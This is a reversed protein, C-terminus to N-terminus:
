TLQVKQQNSLVLKTTISTKTRPPLIEIIMLFSHWWFNNHPWNFLWNCSQSVCHFMLLIRWDCASFMCLMMHKFTQNQVKAKSHFCVHEKKKREKKKPGSMHFCVSHDHETPEGMQRWNFTQKGRIRKQQSGFAFFHQFVLQWWTPAANSATSRRCQWQQTKIEHSSVVGIIQIWLLMCGWQPCARCAFTLCNKFCKQADIKLQRSSASQWLHMHWSACHKTWIINHSEFWVDSNSWTQLSSQQQMMLSSALSWGGKCALLVM